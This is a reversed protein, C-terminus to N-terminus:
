NTGPSGYLCRWDGVAPVYAERAKYRMNETGWDKDEDMTLPLAQFLILGSEADTQIYWSKSNTIYNSVCVPLIGKLVNTDNNATDPRLDSGLIRKAEWQLELPIVLQKPRLAIQFGEESPYRGIATMGDSISRESLDVGSSPTNAWTGGKSLLHSSSLLTVADASTVSSSAGNFVNWCFMEKTQIMSKVLSRTKQELVNYYRGWHIAEWSIVTGLAVVSNKYNRSYTQGFDDTQVESAEPKIFAYGLGNMNQLTEFETSSTMTEFVKSWQQDLEAYTDGFYKTVLPKCASQIRGINITM